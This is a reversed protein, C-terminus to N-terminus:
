KVWIYKDMEKLKKLLKDVEIYDKIVINGHQLIHQKVKNKEIFEIIEKIM